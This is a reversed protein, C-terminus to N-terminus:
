LNSNSKAYKIFEKEDLEVKFTDKILRVAHKPSYGSLILNKCLKEAKEKTIGLLVNYEQNTLYRFEDKDSTKM